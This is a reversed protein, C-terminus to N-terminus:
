PLVSGGRPPEGPKDTGTPQYGGGGCGPGRELAEVRRELDGLVWFARVVGCVCFVALFIM